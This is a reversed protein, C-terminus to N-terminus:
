PGSRALVELIYDASVPGWHGLLEILDATGVLDDGDFDAPHGPNDGWAGLLVILDSSGVDGDGDLDFRGTAAEIVTVQVRYQGPSEITVQAAEEIGLGGRDVGALVTDRDDFVELLYDGAGNLVISMFSDAQLDDIIYSDVEGPAGDGVVAVPDTNFIAPLAGDLDDEIVEIAPVNEFLHDDKWGGLFIDVDGDGNTDFAAAHWAEHISGNPFADGPTWDVFSIEGSVSTNRLITPRDNGANGSGEMGIIVDDRGDGNLDAVTLRVSDRVVSAPLTPGDAFIPINDADNGLNVLLGDVFGVKNAWYIDIDGDSDFDGGIISNEHNGGLGLEQLSGRYSYDGVGDGADLNDNYYIENGDGISVCGSRLLDLKGDGNLDALNVDETYHFDEIPVHTETVDTFFGFGDNFYMRDQTSLPGSVLFLDDDGDMDADFSVGANTANTCGFGECVPTEQFPMRLDTEDVFHSFRGNRQVNIYIRDAHSNADNAVYIDLWGDGDYDRFFAERSVDNDSFGPIAPAGSIENFVGDDNRYLKNKRTGFDGQAVAIVVDLDIDNDFDGFEVAKENSSPEGVTQNIRQATVDEFNLTGPLQDAGAHVTWLLVVAGAAMTILHRDSVTISIM